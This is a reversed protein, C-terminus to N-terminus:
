QTRQLAPSGVQAYKQATRMSRMDLGGTGTNSSKEKLAQQRQQARDQDTPKEPREISNSHGTAGIEAKPSQPPNSPNYEADKDLRVAEKQSAGRVKGNSEHGTAGIEANPSKPPNSPNYETDKDLRVAEKQSAGRAKGNSESGTAGIEAKPSKPPESPNTKAKKMAEKSIEATDGSKHPAYSQEQSRASREPRRNMRQDQVRSFEGREIHAINM